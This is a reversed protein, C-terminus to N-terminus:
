QWYCAKKVTSTSMNQHLDLNILLFLNNFSSVIIFILNDANIIIWVFTVVTGWEFFLLDSADSNIQHM